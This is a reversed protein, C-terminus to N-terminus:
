VGSGIKSRGSKEKGDEAQLLNGEESLPSTLGTEGSGSGSGRGGAEVDEDDSMLGELEFEEADRVQQSDTARHRPMRAQAANLMGGGNMMSPPPVDSYTLASPKRSHMGGNSMGRRHGAYLGAAVPGGVSMGRQPAGGMPTGRALLVGNSEDDPWTAVAYIHLLINVFLYMLFAISYLLLIYSVHTIHANSLLEMQEETAGM